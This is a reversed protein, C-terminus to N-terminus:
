GRSDIGSSKIITDVRQGTLRYCRAAELIVYDPPQVRLSLKEYNQVAEHHREDWSLIVIYDSLVDPANGTEKLAVRMFELAKKFDGKRALQVATRHLATQESAFAVSNDYSVLITLILIPLVLLYFGAFFPRRFVSQIRGRRNETSFFRSKSRPRSLSM